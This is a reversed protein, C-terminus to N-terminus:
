QRPLWFLGGTDDASSAGSSAASPSLALGADKHQAEGASLDAVLWSESRRYDCVDAWREETGASGLARAPGQVAKLSQSVGAFAGCRRRAARGEVGKHLRASRQICVGTAQQWVGLMFARWCGRLSSPGTVSTKSLPCVNVRVLLHPLVHDHIDLCSCVAQRSDSGAMLRMVSDEQEPEQHGCGCLVPIDDPEGAGAARQLCVLPHTATAPSSVCAHASPCDCTTLAVPQQHPM